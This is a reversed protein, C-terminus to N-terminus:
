IHEVKTVPNSSKEVCLTDGHSTVSMRRLWLKVALAFLYVVFMIYCCLFAKHHNIKNVNFTTRFVICFLYLAENMFETPKVEKTLIVNTFIPIYM